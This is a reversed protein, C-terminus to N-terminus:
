QQAELQELKPLRHGRWKLLTYAYAKRVMLYNAQQRLHALQDHEPETLAKQKQKELLEHLQEHHDTSAVSGAIHWLDEDTCQELAILNNRLDDPLDEPLPPITANLAQVVVDEISHRSLEALRELRSYLPEPLYVPITQNSMDNTELEKKM